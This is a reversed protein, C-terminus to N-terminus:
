PKVKVPKLRPLQKHLKMSTIYEIKQQLTKSNKAQNFVRTPQYMLYAFTYARDLAHSKKADSSVFASSKKDNALLIEWDRNDKKKDYALFFERYIM